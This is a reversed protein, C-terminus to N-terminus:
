AFGDRWNAHDGSLSNYRSVTWGVVGLLIVMQVGLKRAIRTAIVLHLGREPPPLHELLFALADHLLPRVRPITLKTTLLPTIVPAV